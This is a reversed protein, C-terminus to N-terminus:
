QWWHKSTEQNKLQIFAQLQKAIDKESFTDSKAIPEIRRLVESELIKYRKVLLDYLAENTYPNDKKFANVYQLIHHFFIRNHDTNKGLGVWDCVQEPSIRLNVWHEIVIPQTHLASFASGLLFETSKLNQISQLWKILAITDMKDDGDIKQHLMSKLLEPFDNVFYRRSKTYINSWSAFINNVGDYMPPLLVWFEMPDQKLKEWAQFVRNSIARNSAMYALMDEALTKTDGSQRLSQMVNAMELEKITNTNMLLDYVRQVFAEREINDETQYRYSNAYVFWQKFEPNDDIKFQEPRNEFMSWPSEQDNLRNKNAVTQKIPNSTLDLLMKEGVSEFGPVYRLRSYLEVLQKDTHKAKLFQVLEDDTMGEGQQRRDIVQALWDPHNDSKPIENTVRATTPKSAMDILIRDAFNTMGPLTRIWTCLEVLEADSQKTKLLKIVEGDDYRIGRSRLHVVRNLWDHFEKNHKLVGGNKVVPLLEFAKTPNSRWWAWKYALKNIIESIKHYFRTLLNSESAKTDVHIGMWTREEQSKETFTVNRNFAPHLISTNTYETSKTSLEHSLAGSANSHLGIYVWAFLSFLHRM